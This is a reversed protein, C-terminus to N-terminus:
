TFICEKLGDRMYHIAEKILNGISIESFFQYMPTCLLTQPCRNDAHMLKFLIDQNMAKLENECNVLNKIETDIRLISYLKNM